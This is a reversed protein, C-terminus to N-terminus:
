LSDSPSTAAAEEVPLDPGPPQLFPPAQAPPQHVPPAVPSGLYATSTEKLIHKYIHPKVLYMLNSWVAAETAPSAPMLTASCHSDALPRQKRCSYMSDIRARCTRYPQLAHLLVRIAQSMCLDDPRLPAQAQRGAYNCHLHAAACSGAVDEAACGVYAEFCAVLTSAQAVASTTNAVSAPHMRAAVDCLTSAHAAVATTDRRKCSADPAAASPRRRGSAMMVLSSVCARVSARSFFCLLKPM